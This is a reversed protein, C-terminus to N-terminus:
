PVKVNRLWDEFLVVFYRHKRLSKSYYELIIIKNKNKIEKHSTSRLRVSSVSLQLNDDDGM